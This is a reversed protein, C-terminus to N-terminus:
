VSARENQFQKHFVQVLKKENRPLMETMIRVRAETRYIRLEQILLHDLYITLLVQIFYILMYVFRCNM